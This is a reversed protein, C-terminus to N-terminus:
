VWRGSYWGLRSLLLLTAPATRKRCRHISQWEM